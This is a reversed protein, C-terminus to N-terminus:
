RCATPCSDRARGRPTLRRARKAVRPSASAIKARRERSERSERSERVTGAGSIMMLKDIAMAFIRESTARPLRTAPTADRRDVRRAFRRSTRRRARTHNLTWRTTARAGIGRATEGRRSRAFAIIEWTGALSSKRHCTVFFCLANVRADVLPCPARNLASGPLTVASTDNRALPSAFAFVISIRSCSPPFPFGAAVHSPFFNHPDNLDCAPSTFIAAFARGSKSTRDNLTKSSSAVRLARSVRLVRSPVNARSPRARRHLRHARAVAVSDSSQRTRSVREIRLFGRESADGGDVLRTAHLAGRLRGSPRHNVHFV